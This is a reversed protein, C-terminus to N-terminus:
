WAPVRPALLSLLLSVMRLKPAIWTMGLLRRPIILATLSRRRTVLWPFLPVVMLPDVRETLPASLPASLPPAAPPLSSKLLTQILQGAGHLTDSSSSAQSMAVASPKVEPESDMDNSSKPVSRSPRPKEVAPQYVAFLQHAAPAIDELPPMRSQHFEPFPESDDDSPEGIM